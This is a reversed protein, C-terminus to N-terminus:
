QDLLRSMSLRILGLRALPNTTPRPLLKNGDTRCCILSKRDSWYGSAILLPFVHFSITPLPPPPLSRSVSVQVRDEEASKPFAKAPRSDHTAAEGHATSLPLASCVRERGASHCAPIACYDKWQYHHKPTYAHTHTHTRTPTYPHTHTHALLHTHIHTHTHTRIPTYTHALLHTHM